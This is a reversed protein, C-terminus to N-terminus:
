KLLFSNLYLVANVVVHLPLHKGKIIIIVVSEILMHTHGRRVCRPM